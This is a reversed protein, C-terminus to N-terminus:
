EVAKMCADAWRDLYEADIPGAGELLKQSIKGANFLKAFVTAAMDDKLYIATLAIRCAAKRRLPNETM